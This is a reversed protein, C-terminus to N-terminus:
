CTPITKTPVTFQLHDRRSIQLKNPLTEWTCQHGKQCKLTLIDNDQTLFVSSGDPSPSMRPGWDMRKPLKGASFQFLFNSWIYVLWLFSCFINRIKEIRHEIKKPCNQHICWKIDSLCMFLISFNITHQLPVNSVINKCIKWNFLQIEAFIKHLYILIKVHAINMIIAVNWSWNTDCFLILM